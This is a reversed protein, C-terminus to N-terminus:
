EEDNEDESSSAESVESESSSETNSNPSDNSESDSECNVEESNVSCYTNINRSIVDEPGGNENQTLEEEMESDDQSSDYHDQVPDPAVVEENVDLVVAHQKEEDGTSSEDTEQEVSKKGQAEKRYLTRRPIPLGPDNLYRKKVRKLPGALSFHM